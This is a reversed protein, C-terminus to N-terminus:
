KLIIIAYMKFNFSVDYKQEEFILEFDVFSM